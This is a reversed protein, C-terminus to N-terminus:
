YLKISQPYEFLVAGYHTLSMARKSSGKSPSAVFLLKRKQLARVASWFGERSPPDHKNERFKEAVAHYIGNSFIHAVGQGSIAKSAEWEQWRVEMLTLIQLPSLGLTYLRSLTRGAKGVIDKSQASLNM